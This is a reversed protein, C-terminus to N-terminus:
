WCRCCPASRSWRGCGSGSRCWCRRWCARPPRRPRSCRSRWELIHSRLRDCPDGSRDALDLAESLLTQATNISTLKYRCVGMRYLVEAREVDSFGAEEALGILLQTQRVSKARIKEVGIQNIIKYGSEAAYLAPALLNADVAVTTAGSRGFATVIDVRQGACTFLVVPM